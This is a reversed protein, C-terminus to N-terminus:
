VSIGSIVMGAGGLILAEANGDIGTNSIGPNSKDHVNANNNAIGFTYGNKANLIASIGYATGYYANEIDPIPEGHQVQLNLNFSKIDWTDPFFDIFWRTQLVKCSSSADPSSPVNSLYKYNM